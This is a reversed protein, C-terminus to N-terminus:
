FLRQSFNSFHYKLGKRQEMNNPMYYTNAQQHSAAGQNQYYSQPDSSMTQM